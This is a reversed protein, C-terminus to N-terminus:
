IGVWDTVVTGGETTCRLRVLADAAVDVDLTFCGQDDVVGRGVEGARSEVVIEGRTGPVLQGVLRRPLIDVTVAVDDTEFELSRTTASGSRVLATDDLLSDYTLSALEEDVTRWTFARRGAELVADDAPASRALAQMLDAMLADDDSWGPQTM